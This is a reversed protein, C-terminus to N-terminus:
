QGQHHEAFILGTFDPPRRDTPPAALGAPRTLSLHGTEGSGCYGSRDCPPARQAPVRSGSWRQAGAAPYQASEGGGQLCRTSSPGAPPLAKPTPDKRPPVHPNVRARVDPRHRQFGSTETGKWVTVIATLM